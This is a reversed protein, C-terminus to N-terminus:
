KIAPSPTGSVKLLDCVKSHPNEARGEDKVNVILGTVLDEKLVKKLSWSTTRILSSTAINVSAQISIWAM